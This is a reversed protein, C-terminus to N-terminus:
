APRAPAHHDRPRRPGQTLKEVSQLQKPKLRSTAHLARQSAGLNPDKQKDQLRRTTDGATHRQTGMATGLGKTHRKRPHAHCLSVVAPGDPKTKRKWPSGGCDPHPLLSHRPFSQAGIGTSPGSKCLLTLESYDSTEVAGNRCEELPVLVQSRASGPLPISHLRARSHSSRKWPQGCHSRSHTGQRLGPLGRARRGPHEGKTLTGAKGTAAWPWSRKKLTIRQYRQAM